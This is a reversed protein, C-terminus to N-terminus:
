PTKGVEFYPVKPHRLLARTLRKAEKISLVRWDNGSEFRIIIGGGYPVEAWHTEVVPYRQKKAM